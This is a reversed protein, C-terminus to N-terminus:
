LTPKEPKISPAAAKHEVPIATSLASVPHGTGPEAANESQANPIAEPRPSSRFLLLSERSRTSLHNKVDSKKILSM